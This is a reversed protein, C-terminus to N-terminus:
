VFNYSARRYFNQRKRLPRLSIDFSGLEGGAWPPRSTGTGSNGGSVGTADGGPDGGDEPGDAAKRDGLVAPANGAGSGRLRLAASIGEGAGERLRHDCLYVLTIVEYLM